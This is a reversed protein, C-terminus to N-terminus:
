DDFYNMKPVQKSNLIDFSLPPIFTKQTISSRLEAIRTVGVYIDSIRYWTAYDVVGTQPLNFVSQFVKVAEETRAGYVGDVASKPILPYNQSIRNLQDQITEVESGTSGVTLDYGPYSSPSGKVLEATVLEIDNGYYNTLIEYPVKGQDGLYKSGWQTMWGPCQVNKGDCYQTLLPQKRGIRRVYTSFIDDVIVSISDYINRGYNFAHDYATSNTIDYNKGKGKYWETYIRNLTFSIIAYINARITSEPWTSYIECSAVNKIYDKYLVKYNPASNNSPTGAHVTIFEPVVPKPLVVGSTPPPLPKDVEEPIKAPFNGNLTNPSINIVDARFGRRNSNEVLRCQQIATQGPFVQIGNIVLVQFGEREVQLDYLSYPTPQSPEQSYELPPADLEITQSEGSSNTVLNVERSEGTQGASPVLVAKSGDVPIYTDGVFCQLKLRGKEAM